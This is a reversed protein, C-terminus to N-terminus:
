RIRCGFFTKRICVFTISIDVVCLIGSIQRNNKIEVLIDSRYKIFVKMLTDSKIALKLSHIIYCRGILSCIFIGGFFLFALIVV